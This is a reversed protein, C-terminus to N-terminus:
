TTIEFKFNDKNEKRYGLEVKLAEINKGQLKERQFSGKCCPLHFPYKTALGVYGLLVLARDEAVKEDWIRQSAAPQLQEIGLILKERSICPEM